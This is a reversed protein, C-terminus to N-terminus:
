ATRGSDRHERLRLQVSRPSEGGRLREVVTVGDVRIPLDDPTIDLRMCTDAIRADHEGLSAELWRRKEAPEILHSAWEDVPKPKPPTRRRRSSSPKQRIEAASVGFLDAAATRDDNGAPRTEESTRGELHERLRRVQPASVTSSASKVYEGLSKLADLLVKTEVGWQKALDHV